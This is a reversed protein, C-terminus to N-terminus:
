TQKRDELLGAVVVATALRQLNGSAQHSDRSVLLRSLEEDCNYAAVSSGQRRDCSFCRGDIGGFEHGAGAGPKYVPM